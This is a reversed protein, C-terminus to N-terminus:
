GMVMDPPGLTGKDTTVILLAQIEEVTRSKCKSYKYRRFLVPMSPSPLHQHYHLPSILLTVSVSIDVKFYSISFNSHRRITQSIQFELGVGTMITNSHQADATNGRTTSHYLLYNVQFLKGSVFSFETM